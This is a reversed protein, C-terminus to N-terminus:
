DKEIPTECYPCKDEEETILFGCEECEYFIEDDISPLDEEELEIGCHPCKTADKPVQRGCVSCEKEEKETDLSESVGAATVSPEEDRTTEGEVGESEEVKPEEVEQEVKQESDIIEEESWETQEELKAGCYPCKPEDRPVQRRCISCEREEKETERSVDAAVPGSEEVGPTEEEFEESELESVETESPKEVEEEVFVKGEKDEDFSIESEVEEGQPKIEKTDDSKKSKFSKTGVFKSGEKRDLKKLDEEKKSEQITDFLATGELGKTKKARNDSSSLASLPYRETLREEEGRKWIFVIILAMFILIALLFLWWLGCWGGLVATNESGAEVIITDEYGEGLTFTYEGPEDSEWIFQGEEETDPGLTIEDSDEFVVEGDEDYITIEVEHTGEIGGTNMLMYEVVAEEGVEVKEDYELIDVVFKADEVFNATVTRDRDIEITIEEEEEQEPSVDGSWHSFCWGEAPSATLLVMEGERYTHSGSSPETTGEGEVSITLGYEDEGLEQFYVTISKEDDMMIEITEAESEGEPYDGGWHSFTWNAAPSAALEVLTGEEYEENYPTEVEEGNVGINGEGEVDINLDYKISPDIEEFHATVEKNGDMVVTIEEQNEEGQPVDGTWRDLMWGDDSVAEIKVETGEYYTHAGPDPDTTGGEKADIILEYEVDGEAVIVAVEENDDNSEIGLDYEGPEEALWTFEDEHVGGEMLTVDQSDKVEGDVTFEISQTDEVDGINEIKYEVRVTEGEVFEDDRTLDIIDVSFEAPKKVVFEDEGNDDDSAVTATYTGADGSSTEVAFSVTTSEGPDLRVLDFDTGVDSELNIEQAEEMEGTNEISATVELTEGEVVNPANVDYVAFYAPELVEFTDSGSDDESSVEATYNGADGSSTDVTFTEVASQGGDLSLTLSHNGINPATTLEIKQTDSVDGTNEITATVELNEGEVVDEAEVNYVSFEAPVLVEFTDSDSDDESSVEATYNGADGSSTDVTFTEVASQGGDLSLTLSHNGINPATTLEIKQTDSVDGTNEITATVELNEGEVVDEAEVNYVSFEAPVLVEFTDQDSDDESSVEATYNGADGSSTNVTFTEVMSQGGDLTVTVSDSGIDSSTTMEVTQTDSVDGTNEITATVELNEGEVVDEAEVDNVAFNSPELVEFTDSDSDDESSVEATYSGADGTSTSTTFTEVTSQGGDLTVTVSDSGIDSDTTMQITQTESIGGTNEITATVELNEGEVVDPADVDYVEFYPPDVVKTEVAFAGGIGYDTELDEWQAPDHPNDINIYQGDQVWPDDPTQDDSVCGFPYYQDGYDDLEMVVWYDGPAEIKVPQDLELEVWGAGSITHQNSSAEWPEAPAGGDDPSVHAVAWDGADQYDYYAVHTLYDDLNDSLDLLMAGHWEGSDTIGVANEPTFRHNIDQVNGYLYLWGNEEVPPSSRPKEEIEVNSTDKENLPRDIVEGYPGRYM